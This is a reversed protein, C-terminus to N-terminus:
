VIFFYLKQYDDIVCKILVNMKIYGDSFSVDHWTIYSICFYEFWFTFTIPSSVPLFWFIISYFLFVSDQLKIAERTAGKGFRLYSIDDNGGAHIPDSFLGVRTQVDYRLSLYRLIYGVPIIKKKLRMEDLHWNHKSIIYLVLTCSKDKYIPVHINRFTIM